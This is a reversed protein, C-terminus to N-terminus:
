RHRNKFLSAILYVIAVAVGVVILAAGLLLALEFASIVLALMAAEVFKYGNGANQAREM